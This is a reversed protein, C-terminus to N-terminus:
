SSRISCPSPSGVRCFSYRLWSSSRRTDASSASVEPARSISRAVGGPVGNSGVGIRVSISASTTPASM